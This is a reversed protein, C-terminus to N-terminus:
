QSFSHWEASLYPLQGKSMSPRANDAARDVAPDLNGSNMQFRSTTASASRGTPLKPKVAKASPKAKLIPKTVEAEIEPLQIKDLSGVSSTPSVQYSGGPIAAITYNAQAVV